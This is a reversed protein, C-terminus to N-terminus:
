AAELSSMVFVGDAAVGIVQARYEKGSEIVANFTQPSSPKSSATNSASGVTTSDTINRLRVTVAGGARAWIWARVLATFSSRAVFPDCNRIDTYAPVSDDMPVDAFDSGGLVVKGVSTSSGGGVVGGGSIAVGGGSSGSKSWLKFIEHAAEPIVIGDVATIDYALLTPGLQSVEVNTILCNGNLARWPEVISIVQGPHLGTTHTRFTIENQVVQDRVLYGDAMRQATAEDTLEPHEYTKDVRDAAAAGSSAFVSASLSADTGFLLSSVTAGGAVTWTADPNDSSVAIGNGSAGAQLATIVLADPTRYATVEGNVTTGTHYDTGATAALTIARHLTDLSESVSAGLHVDNASAL